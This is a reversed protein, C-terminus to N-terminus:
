KWRVTQNLSATTYGRAKLEAKTLPKQKGPKQNKAFKAQKWELFTHRFQEGSELFEKYLIENRDAHYKQSKQKAKSIGVSTSNDMGGM